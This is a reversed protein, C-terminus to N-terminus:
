RRIHVVEYAVVLVHLLGPVLGPVVVVVVFLIVVPLIDFSPSGALGGVVGDLDVVVVVVVVPKAFNAAAAATTPPGGDDVRGLRQVRRGLVVHLGWRRRRDNRGHVVLGLRRSRTPKPPSARRKGVAVVAVSFISFISFVARRIPHRIGRRGPASLPQPSLVRARLLVGLLAAVVVVVVVLRRPLLLRRSGYRRFGFGGLELLSRARADGATARQFRLNPPLVDRLELLLHPALLGLEPLDLAGGLVRRPRLARLVLLADIVEDDKVLFVHVKEFVAVVVLVVPVVARRRVGAREGALDVADLSRGRLFELPDRALAPGRLVVPPVVHDLAAVGPAADPLVDSAHVHIGVSRRLKEAGVARRLAPVARVRGRAFGRPQPPSSGERGHERPGLGRPRLAHRAREGRIIKGDHVLEEPAM